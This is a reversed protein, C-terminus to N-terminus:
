SFVILNNIKKELESLSYNWPDIIQNITCIKPGIGCSIITREKFYYVAIWKDISPLFLHLMEIKGNKESLQCSSQNLNKSENMPAFCCYNCRYYDNVLALPKDCFYCKLEM